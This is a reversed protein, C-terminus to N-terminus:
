EELAHHSLGLTERMTVSAPPDVTSEEMYVHESAVGLSLNPSSRALSLTRAPETYTSRARSNSTYFSAPDLDRSFFYM